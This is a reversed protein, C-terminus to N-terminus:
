FTLILFFCGLAILILIVTLLGGSIINIKNGNIQISRNIELNPKETKRDSSVTAKKLLNTIKDDLSNM